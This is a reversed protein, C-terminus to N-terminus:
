GHVVQAYVAPLAPLAQDEGADEGRVDGAADGSRAAGPVRGDHGLDDCEAPGRQGGGTEAGIDGLRGGRAVVGVEERAHRHHAQVDDAEVAEEPSTKVAEGVGAVGESGGDCIEAERSGTM